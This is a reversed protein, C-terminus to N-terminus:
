LLLRVRQEATSDRTSVLDEKVKAAKAQLVTSGRSFRRAGGGLPMDRSAVHRFVRGCFGLM